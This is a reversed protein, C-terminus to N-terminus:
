GKKRKKFILMILLFVVINSIIVPIILPFDLIPFNQEDESFHFDITENDPNLIASFSFWSLIGMICVSSFKLGDRFIKALFGKEIIEEKTKDLTVFIDFNIKFFRHEQGKRKIKKNTILLMNLEEMKKLHHIVLSVRMDLKTALENTYMENTMLNSIIRRSSDNSLLEGLAKLNDDSAFVKINPADDDSL